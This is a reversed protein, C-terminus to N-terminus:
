VLQQIAPYPYWVSTHALGGGGATGGTGGNEGGYLAHVLMADEQISLCSGGSVHVVQDQPIFCYQLLFSTQILAFM